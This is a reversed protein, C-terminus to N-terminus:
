AVSAPTGLFRGVDEAEAAIGARVARSLRVFPDVEIQAGRGRRRVRWTAVCRGDVLVVPAFWGGGPFLRDHFRTDIADDRGRYGLLYTDWGPALRVAGAAPEAEVLARPAWLRREGVRVEELEGELAEWGERLDRLALGSWAATDAPTVPAFGTVHRRVLEVRAEREGLERLGRPWAAYTPRRGRDPGCCIAGELAAFRLLGYESGAFDAHGRERLAAVVERRDLPAPRCAERLDDLAAEAAALLDRQELWRRVGARQSAATAARAWRLDHRAFLHLTGRMAWTRVLEGDAVARAVAAATLGTTRVRLSLAGMASDQAQAGGVRAAAAVAGAAPEAPDLALSRM